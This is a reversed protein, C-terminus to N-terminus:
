IQALQAHGWWRTRDRALTGSLLLRRHVTRHRAASSIQPRSITQRAAKSM